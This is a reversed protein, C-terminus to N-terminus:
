GQKLSCKLVGEDSGAFGCYSFIKMDIKVRIKFFMDVKAETPTGCFM